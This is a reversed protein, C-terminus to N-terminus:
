VHRDSRTIDDGNMVRQLIRQSRKDEMIYYKNKTGTVIHKYPSNLIAKAYQEQIQKLIKEKSDNIERKLNSAETLSPSVVVRNVATREVM